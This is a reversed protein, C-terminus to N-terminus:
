LEEHGCAVNDMRVVSSGVLQPVDQQRISVFVPQVSSDVLDPRREGHAHLALVTGPTTLTWQGILFGTEASLRAPDARVMAFRNAGGNM